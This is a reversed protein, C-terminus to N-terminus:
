AIPMVLGHAVAWVLIMKHRKMNSVIEALLPYVAQRGRDMTTQGGIKIVNVDPLIKIEQDAHSFRVVELDTLSQSPLSSEILRQSPETNDIVNM